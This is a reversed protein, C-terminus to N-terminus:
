AGAIKSWCEPGIGRAVSEDNSLARGCCACTGLRKGNEALVALADDRLANMVPWVDTKAAADMAKADHSPLWNGDKAIIGMKLAGFAIGVKGAHTGHQMRYFKLERGAETGLKFSPWKNGSADIHDLISVVQAFGPVGTPAVTPKSTETATETKARMRVLAARQNASLGFRKGKAAVDQCFSSWNQAAAWALLETDDNTTM